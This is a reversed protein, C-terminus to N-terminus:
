TAQHLRQRFLDSHRAPGWNFFMEAHVRGRSLNSCAPLGIGIRGGADTDWAAPAVWRPVTGNREFGSM